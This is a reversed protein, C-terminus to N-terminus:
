DMWGVIVLLLRHSSLSRICHSPVPRNRHADSADIGDRSNMVVNVDTPGSTIWMLFDGPGDVSSLQLDFRDNAFTGAPIIVDGVSTNIGLFPVGDKVTQPIVWLPDGPVGLFSFTPNDPIALRANEGIWIAVSDPDRDDYARWIWEGGSFGLVMDGHGETWVEKPGAEAKTALLLLVISLLRPIQKLLHNYM